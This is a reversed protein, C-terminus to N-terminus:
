RLPYQRQYHKFEDELEDKRKGLDAVTTELEAIKAQEAVTKKQLEELEATRDKPANALKDRLVTLEGELRRIEARQEERKRVLEPDDGCSSLVLTSLLALAIPPRATLRQSM